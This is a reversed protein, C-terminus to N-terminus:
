LPSAAAFRIRADEHLALGTITEACDFDSLAGLSNLLACAFEDDATRLSERLARVAEPSGIRELAVRAKERYDQDALLAAIPTVDFGAPVTMALLRLGCVKTSEPQHTAIMSMFLQCAERRTEDRGPVSAENAIDMLVDSAPRSIALNEHSVLPILAPIADVGFAPLHQRAQVRESEIQEALAKVLDDPQGASTARCPVIAICLVAVLFGPGIRQKNM